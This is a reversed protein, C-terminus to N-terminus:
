PQQQIPPAPQRRRQQRLACDALVTAAMSEVIPVARNVVCPDHRGRAEQTTEKGTFDATKQAKGITAPPKFGVRFVVPEGNSIGGLVGGSNNTVTGLGDGKKVFMDNHHSGKMTTATFGSGIEFAKTAPLSLMAHALLAELKDFVPEGLGPPVNRCVCMVCGGISDQEERTRAILQEMRQATSSDPCRTTTTDVIERSLTDIDPMPTQIDGVSSVWAIIETGFTGSLFKEAVAGGCVRGITERASARGGGSQARIGFKAQYTYDAHSPRPVSLMQAYDGPRHDENHVLLMIPTGLTTDRELGSYLIVRDKESRRTSIASQGPRRRDLQKQIDSAHL